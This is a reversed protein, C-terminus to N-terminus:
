MKRQIVLNHSGPSGINKATGKLINGHWALNLAGTGTHGPYNWSKIGNIEWRYERAYGGANILLYVDGGIQATGTAERCGTTDFCVLWQVGAAQPPGPAPPPAPPRTIYWQIGFLIGGILLLAGVLQVWGYKKVFLLVVGLLILGVILWLQSVKDDPLPPPTKPVQPAKWGLDKACDERWKAVGDALTKIKAEAALREKDDPASHALYQKGDPGTYEKRKDKGGVTEYLLDHLDKKATAVNENMQRKAEDNCLDQKVEQSRLSPDGLSEETKLANTAKRSEPLMKYVAPVALVLTIVVLGRIAWRRVTPDTVFSLVLAWLLLSATVVVGLEPGLLISSCIFVLVAIGLSVWFGHGSM